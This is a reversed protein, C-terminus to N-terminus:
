LNSISTLLHNWMTNMSLLSLFSHIHLKKESNKKPCSERKLELDSVSYLQITNLDLAVLKPSTFTHCLRNKQFFEFFNVPILKASGLFAYNQSYKTDVQFERFETVAFFHLKLTNSRHFYIQAVQSNTMARNLIICSVTNVWLSMQNMWSHINPSFVASVIAGDSYTAEDHIFYIKFFCVSCPFM